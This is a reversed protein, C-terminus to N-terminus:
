NLFMRSFFFGYAIFGLSVTLGLWMKALRAQEHAKKKLQDSQEGQYNQAEQWTKQALYTYVVCVIGAPLFCLLLSMVALVMSVKPPENIDPETNYSPGPTTGSKRVARRFKIPIDELAKEEESLQHDEPTPPQPGVGPKPITVHPQVPQQMQPHMKNAIHQRLLRCIDPVEEAKQWDAMGKCWVYTSPRVGVNLLEELEFPGQEQGDIFAYYKM